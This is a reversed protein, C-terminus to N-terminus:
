KAQESPLCDVEGEKLMTSGEVGEHGRPISVYKVATAFHRVTHFTPSLHRM